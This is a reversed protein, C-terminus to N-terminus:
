KMPREVVEAVVAASVATEVMAPSDPVRTLGAGAARALAVM